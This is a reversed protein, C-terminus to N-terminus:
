RPRDGIITVRDMVRRQPDYDSVAYHQVARNDWFAISDKRWHFRCQYEPVDAHRYLSALLAASEEEPLGEISRTFIANVYLSKRGTVPHTRVVPHRAEPYQARHATREEESMLLGFNHVFDHVAVLGDIRKKTAAGLGAYAAEMDAFLTDGGCAPIEVARLVSGLSPVERWTVDSHWANEVGITKDDKAFEVIKDYGDKARLFPHDELEGFREAFALHQETSIKQDHFFIVKYELFAREIEAFTADDLSGLDIGDIEAGLTTGAPRVDIREFRLESLREREARVHPRPGYHLKPM